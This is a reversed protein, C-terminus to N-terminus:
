FQRRRVAVGATAPNVSVGAIAWADMSQCTWSMTTTTGGAETSMGFTPGESPTLSTRATQGAGVAFGAPQCDGFVWSVLDVVLDGSTSSVDVTATTETTGTATAGTDVPTTQDVGTLLVVGSTTDEFESIDFTMSQLGSAPATVRALISRVDTGATATSITTASIGAFTLNTVVGGGSFSHTVGLLALRNSGSSVTCDLSVSTANVVNISCANDFVVQAWLPRALALLCSLLILSRHSL